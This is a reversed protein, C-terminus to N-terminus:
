KKKNTIRISAADAAGRDAFRTKKACENPFEYYFFEIPEAFEIRLLSSFALLSEISVFLVVVVIRAILVHFV